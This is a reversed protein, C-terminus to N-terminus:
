AKGAAPHKDPEPRDGTASKREERIKVVAKVIKDCSSCAMFRASGKLYQQQETNMSDFVEMSAIDNLSSPKQIGDMLPDNPYTIQNYEGRLDHIAHNWDEDTNIEGGFHNFLDVVSRPQLKGSWECISRIDTDEDLGPVPSIYVKRVGVKNEVMVMGITIQPGSVWVVNLIKLDNYEQLM